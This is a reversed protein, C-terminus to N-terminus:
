QWMVLKGGRGVTRRRLEGGVLEQVLFLLLPNNLLKVALGPALAAQSAGRHADTTAQQSGDQEVKRRLLRQPGPLCPVM